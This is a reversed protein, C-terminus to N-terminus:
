PRGARAVDVRAVEVRGDRRDRVASATSSPATLVFLDRGTDGGLMCAYAPQSSSVTATVEGGEAVRLCQPSAGNALWVQGEADLCIGDPFVLQFQAFTRRNSVTGDAAVDFASLRQGFTEAVILTAGDESLACGNPFLMEPVTQLISGDPAVVVLETSPVNAPDALAFIGDGAAAEDLDFGFSGAYATGDAAVVMDNALHGCHGRLEAHVRVDGDPGVALIQHAAMSIVLLTGDARWGLGSPQDDFRHEVREGDDGLSCVSHRYFDSYWLRGDHWRPAEGFSLGRFRVETDYTTTM